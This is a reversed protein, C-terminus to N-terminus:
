LWRRCVPSLYSFHIHLGRAHRVNLLFDMGFSFPLNLDLAPRWFVIVGVVVRLHKASGHDIVVVRRAWCVPRQGHSRIPRRHAPGPFGLPPFRLVSAAVQYYSAREAKCFALPKDPSVVVAKVGCVHILLQLQYEVRELAM